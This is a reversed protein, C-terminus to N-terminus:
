TATGRTASCIGRTTFAEGCKPEAALDARCRQWSPQGHHMEDEDGTVSVSVFRESTKQRVFQREHKRALISDRLGNITKLLM